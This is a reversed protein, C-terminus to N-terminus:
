EAGAGIITGSPTQVLVAMHQGAPRPITYTEGTGTWGGLSTISRVVNTETITAGDNEGGGIQTTHHSDFGFLWIQASDAGNGIKITLMNTGTITVPVDPTQSAQATAIANDMDGQDSGVVGPGGDIIAEPTYVDSSHQQAAYNTQRDTAATLAYKDTWAPGNWYTVHFSLALISPKTALRALLAEAPPCSSCAESTYLEIVTPRAQAVQALGLMAFLILWSVVSIPKCIRRPSDTPTPKSFRRAVYAQARARCARLRAGFSWRLPMQLGIKM